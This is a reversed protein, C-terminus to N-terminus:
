TALKPSPWKLELYDWLWELFVGIGYGAAFAFGCLIGQTAFHRPILSPTLALAFFLLGLLWGGTSLRDVQRWLLAKLRAAQM